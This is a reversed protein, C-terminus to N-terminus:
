PILIGVAVLAFEVFQVGLLRYGVAGGLFGKSVNEFVCHIGHMSASGVEGVVELM